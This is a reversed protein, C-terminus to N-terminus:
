PRGVKTSPPSGDRGANSGKQLKLMGFRRLVYASASLLVLALIAWFAWAPAEWRGRALGPEPRTVIETGAPAPRAVEHGSASPTALPPPSPQNM